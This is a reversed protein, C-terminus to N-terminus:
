SARRYRAVDEREKRLQEPILTERYALLRERAYADCDVEYVEARFLPATNRWERFQWIHRGEHAVTCVFRERWDRYLHPEADPTTYNIGIFPYWNAPTIRVQCEADVIRGTEDDTIEARGIITQHEPQWDCIRLRWCPDLGLPGIALEILPRLEATPRSSENIITLM